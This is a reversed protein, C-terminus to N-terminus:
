AFSAIHMRLETTKEKTKMMIIGSNDPANDEGSM